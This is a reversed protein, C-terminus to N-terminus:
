LLPSDEKPMKELNKVPKLLSPLTIEPLETPSNTLANSGQIKQLIQWIAASHEQGKRCLEAVSRNFLDDQDSKVLEEDAENGNGTM